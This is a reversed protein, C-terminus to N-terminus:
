KIRVGPGMTATLYISGIRNVPIINLITNINAILMDDSWSLKGLGLHIIGFSDTKYEIKGSSLETKTKEPESSVTGAKPSPMLGKPGLIKAVIALKPMIEPTAILIDFNIKGSKISEIIKEDAIIIKKAKPVGSPLTVLGRLQDQGKKLITKIHIELTADFKVYSTKKILSLGSEITYLKNKDVQQTALIYKKSKKNVKNKKGTKPRYVKKEINQDIPLDLKTTFEEDPIVSEVEQNLLKKEMKIKKDAPLEEGIIVTKKRGM